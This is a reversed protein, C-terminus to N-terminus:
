GTSCIPVARSTRLPRSCCRVNRVCLRKAPTATSRGRRTAEGTSICCLLDSLWTPMGSLNDYALVWANQTAVMVTEEDKPRIRLGSSAPRDGCGTHVGDDIQRKRAGCAARAVAYPRSPRLTSVLWVLALARDPGPPINVLEFLESVNGGHVPVPLPLMAGPRVFYVPPPRYAAMRRTIRVVRWTEDGLDLYLADHEAVRLWTQRKPGAEALAELHNKVEERSRATAPQGTQKFHWRSLAKVVNSLTMTQRKGDETM